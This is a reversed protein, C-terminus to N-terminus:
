LSLNPTAAQASTVMRAADLGSQNTELHPLQGGPKRAILYMSRIRFLNFTRIQERVTAARFRRRASGCAYALPQPAFLLTATDLKGQREAPTMSRMWRILTADVGVSDYPFMGPGDIALIDSYIQPMM